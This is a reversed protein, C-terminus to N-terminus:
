INFELKQPYDKTYDYNYVEEIISLNCVNSKHNATVNYCSLAYLEISNLMQIAADCNLIIPTDNIWITTQEKGSSKEISISNM